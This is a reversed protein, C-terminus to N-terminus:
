IKQQELKLKEKESVLGEISEFYSECESKKFNSSKLPNFDM